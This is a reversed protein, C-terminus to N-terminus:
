ESPSAAKEVGINEVDEALWQSALCPVPFTSSLSDSQGRSPLLRDSASEQNLSPAIDSASRSKLAQARVFCMVQLGPCVDVSRAGPGGACRLAVDLGLSSYLLGGAVVM